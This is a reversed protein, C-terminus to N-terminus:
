KSDSRAPQSAGSAAAFTAVVDRLTVNGRRDSSAFWKGDPSFAGTTTDATHDRAYVWADDRVAYFWAGGDACV